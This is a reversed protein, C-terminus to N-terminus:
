QASTAGAVAQLRALLTEMWSIEQIQTKHIQAALYKTESSVEPRESVAESMVLAMGHHEIMGRLFEKETIAVQHRLLSYALYTLGILGASWFLIGTTSIHVLHMIMEALGMLGAMLIAGYLKGLHPQILSSTPGLILPMTFYGIPVSVLVMYLISFSPNM